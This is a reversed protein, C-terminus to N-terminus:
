LLSRSEAHNDSFVVVTVTGGSCLATTHSRIRFRSDM